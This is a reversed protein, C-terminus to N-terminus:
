IMSYVHRLQADLREVSKEITDAPLLYYVKNKTGDYYWSHFPAPMQFKVPWNEQVAKVDKATQLTFVRYFKSQSWVFPDIWNAKQSTWMLPVRRDRGAVLINRVMNSFGMLHGEDIYVGIKGHKFVRRLFEELDERDEGGLKPRIIHLGRSPLVLSRPNYPQAPLKKLTSDRKHDIIFWAREKIDRWSLMDIAGWTKGSGNMGALAVHQSENPFAPVDPM